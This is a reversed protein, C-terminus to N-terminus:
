RSQGCRPGTAKTALSGIRQSAPEVAICRRNRILSCASCFALGESISRAGHRRESRTMPHPGYNERGSRMPDLVLESGVHRHNDLDPGPVRLVM